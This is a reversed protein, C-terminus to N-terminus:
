VNLCFDFRGGFNFSYYLDLSDTFIDWQGAEGNVGHILIVPYPLQVGSKGPSPKKLARRVGSPDPASLFEYGAPRERPVADFSYIGNKNQQANAYICIAILCLIITLKKM